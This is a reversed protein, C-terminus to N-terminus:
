RFYQSGRKVCFILIFAGCLLRWRRSVQAALSHHWRDLERRRAEQDTESNRGPMGSTLRPCDQRCRRGAKLSAFQNVELNSVVSSSTAILHTTAFSSRYSIDGLGARARIIVYVTVHDPRM